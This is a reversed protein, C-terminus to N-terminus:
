RIVNIKFDNEILTTLEKLHFGKTPRETKKVFCHTSVANIHKFHSAMTGIGKIFNLRYTNNKVTNFKEIGKIIELNFGPTNKSTIVYIGALIVPDCHFNDPFPVSFKLIGDRVKKLTSKDEGMKDLSDSWLKMQPYSPYVMPINKDSLTVMCIDDTIVPYGLKGFSAALTSKGAGSIGSFIIAQNNYIIASGHLPLIEQQHLLAGFASGLLFLRIDNGKANECSDIIIENGNKILYRAVKDVWLQFKGPAAQFRVGSFTAGPLTEPVKGLRITIKAPQAMKSPLFEPISIQSEIEMGFAHYRYIPYDPIKPNQLKSIM